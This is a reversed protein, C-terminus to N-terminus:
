PLTIEREAIRTVSREVLDLDFSGHEPPLSEITRVRGRTAGAPVPLVPGLVGGLSNPLLDNRMLEDGTFWAIAVYDTDPAPFVVVETAMTTVEPASMWGTWTSLSADAMVGRQVLISTGGDALTTSFLAWASGLAGETDPLAIVGTGMPWPLVAVRGSVAIGPVGVVAAAGAGPDPINVDIETVAFRMASSLELGATLTGLVRLDDPTGVADTHFALFSTSEEVPADMSFTCGEANAVCAAGVSAVLPSAHLVRAPSTALVTWSGEAGALTEEIHGITATRELPIAYTRGGSYWRETVHGAARVEIALPAETTALVARGADDTRATGLYADPGEFIVEANVLPQRTVEDLAFVVLESPNGPEFGARPPAVPAAEGCATLAGLLGLSATFLYPVGRGHFAMRRTDRLTRGEAM